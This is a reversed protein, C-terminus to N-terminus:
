RLVGGHAVEVLVGLVGVTAAGDLLLHSGPHSISIPRRPVPVDLHSPIPSPAPDRHLAPFLPPLLSPAAPISRRPVAAPACRRRPLPAPHRAPFLAPGRVASAAGPRRPLRSPACRRKQPISSETDPSSGRTTPSGSGLHQQPSPLRSRATRASPPPTPSSTGCDRLRGSSPSPGSLALGRSLRTHRYGQPASPQCTGAGDLVAPARPCPTRNDLGQLQLSGPDLVTRGTHAALSVSPCYHLLGQGARHTSAARGSSHSSVQRCGRGGSAVALWLRSTVPNLAPFALLPSTTQLWM